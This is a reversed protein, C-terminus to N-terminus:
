DGHNSIFVSTPPVEEDPPGKYGASTDKGNKYDAKYGISHVASAKKEQKERRIDL